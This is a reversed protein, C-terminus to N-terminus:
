FPQFVAGVTTFGPPDGACNASASAVNTDAENGVM